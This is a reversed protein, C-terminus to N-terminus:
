RLHIYGQKKLVQKKGNEYLFVQGEAAVKRRVFGIKKVITNTQRAAEEVVSWNHESITGILEFDEGGALVFKKQNTESLKKLQPHMPLQSYDIHLDVGSAEAIENAESSIGDSIDNLCVRDLQKLKRSFWVRPTPMRHRNIFHDQAEVSFSRETLLHLGFASDGLTGTVFVVDGDRAHRRYRSKDREVFGIVTVSIVFRDGSVTDGGLLDMHYQDAIEKMGNYVSRLQKDKWSEPVVISVLYFVPISGMAALDSLNAALVRYGLHYPEMTTLRFHVHEVMTDTATVMDMGSPPRFVAADDGIGKQVSSHHYFRPKISKIFSFEDM